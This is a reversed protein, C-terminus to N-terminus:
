ASAEITPGSRRRWVMGAVSLVVVIAESAAAVVGAPESWNGVDDGVEPFAVLRTLCYGAIAAACLVGSLLFPAPASGRVAIVIALTTSAVTFVAFLAGMYPADRLHEPIVPIHAASAVLLAIATPWRLSTTIVQRTMGLCEAKRRIRIVRAKHASQRNSSM